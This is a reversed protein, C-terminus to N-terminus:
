LQVRHPVLGAECPLVRRVDEDQMIQEAKRINSVYSELSDPNHSHFYDPNQTSTEFLRMHVEIIDAGVLAALAGTIVDGTHDSLGDLPWHTMWQLNVDEIPCPYGAVCHLISYNAYSETIRAGKWRLLQRLSEEDHCGSSVIIEKEYPEHAKLFEYDFSELSAVKFKDVFNAIVPIDEPTFVTCLYELGIEHALGSLVVHWGVPKCLYDYAKQNKIHRRFAMLAPRHTWQFKVADCGAAKAIRVLAKAKELDGDHCAAAEGIVYVSM